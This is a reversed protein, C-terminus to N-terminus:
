RGKKTLEEVLKNYADLDGTPLEELKERPVAPVSTPPAEASGVSAAGGSSSKNMPVIADMQNPYIRAWPFSPGPCNARDRPDFNRHGLIYTFAKSLRARIYRNCDIDNRIMIESWVQGPYGVHEKGITWWNPNGLDLRPNSNPFTQRGCHNAARSLLEEDLDRGEGSGVILCWQGIYDGGIVFQASVDRDNNNRLYGWLGNYSSAVGIHEVVGLV